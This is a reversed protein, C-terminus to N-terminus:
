TLEKHQNLFAQWDDDQIIRARYAPHRDKAAQRGTDHDRRTVQRWVACSLGVMAYTALLALAAFVAWGTM